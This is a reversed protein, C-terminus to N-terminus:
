PTNAQVGLRATHQKCWGFGKQLHCWTLYLVPKYFSAICFNQIGEKWEDKLLKL